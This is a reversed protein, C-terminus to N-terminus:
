LEGDFTLTIYGRIGSCLHGIFPHICPSDDMAESVGSLSKTGLLDRPLGGNQPWSLGSLMCFIRSPLRCNCRGGERTAAVGFIQQIWLQIFLM